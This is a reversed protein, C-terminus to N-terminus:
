PNPNSVSLSLSIQGEKLSEPGKGQRGARGGEREERGGPVIRTALCCRLGDFRL